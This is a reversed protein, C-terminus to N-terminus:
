AINLSYNAITSLLGRPVYRPINVPQTALRFPALLAREVWKPLPASPEPFNQASGVNYFTSPSNQNNYETAIWDASRSANSLRAEDITGNFWDTANDSGIRAYTSGLSYAYATPGAALTGNVYLQVNTG